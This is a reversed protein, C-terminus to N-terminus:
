VYIWVERIFWAWSLVLLVSKTIFQETYQAKCIEALKQKIAIENALQKDQLEIFQTFKSYRIWKGGNSRQMVAKNGNLINSYRNIQM